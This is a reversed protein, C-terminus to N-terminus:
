QWGGFLRHYERRGVDTLRYRLVRRERGGEAPRELHLGAPEVLGRKAMVGLRSSAISRHRGIVSAGTDASIPGDHLRALLEKWQRSREVVNAAAAEKASRPDHRRVRAVPVADFLSGQAPSV